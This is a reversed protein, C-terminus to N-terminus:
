PSEGKRKGVGKIFAGWAAAARKSFEDATEPKKASKADEKSVEVKRFELRFGPTDTTISRPNDAFMRVVELRLAEIEQDTRSPRNWEAEQWAVWGSFQRHTM